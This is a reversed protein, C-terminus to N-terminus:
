EACSVFVDRKLVGCEILSVQKERRKRQSLLEGAGFAEQLEPTNIRMRDVLEQLSRHYDSTVDIRDLIQWGSECLLPEYGDPADVHPPGADLIEQYESASINGAPRIVSFHMRANSTAIRRCERLMELKEPLCCLVDSHSLRDFSGAGFPLATGSGAVVHVQEPIQDDTAREVAQQLANLPIDVLTVDCGTMRGLYLGPWGSGAGLELLQVGARLELSEAIHDAQTRTTWSTGGYDCGLVNRELERLAPLRSLEYNGAFDCRQDNSGGTQKNMLEQDRNRCYPNLNPAEM